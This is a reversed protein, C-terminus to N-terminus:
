QGSREEGEEDLMARVKEALLETSFPKRLFHTGPALVRNGGIGGDSETYGSMLLVKISSHRQNLRTALEFGGMEPMVVDTVVLDITEVEIVELAASGNHAELVRYGKKSLSQRLVFRVSEDDEVVLLTESGIPEPAILDETM